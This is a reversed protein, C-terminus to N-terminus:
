RRAGHLQAVTQCAVTSNEYQEEYGARFEDKVKGKGHVKNM